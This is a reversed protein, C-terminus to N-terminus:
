GADASKRASSKKGRKSGESVFLISTAGNKNIQRRLIRGDGVDIDGVDSLAQEVAPRLVDVGREAEKARAWARAVDQADLATVHEQGFQMAVAARMAPCYRWSPCRACHAGMTVDPTWYPRDAAPLSEYKRRVARVRSHIGRITESLDNLADVDLDFRHWYVGGDRDIEGIGCRVETAGMLSAVCLAYFSLQFRSADLDLDWVASKWDVVTPVNGNAHDGPVVLDATGCIEWESADSYDRHTGELRRALGTRVDWAYAVEPEGHPLQALDIGACWDRHADPISALAEVPDKGRMVSELYAHVQRGRSLEGTSSAVRSVAPLAFSPTCIAAM